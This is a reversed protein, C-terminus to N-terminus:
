KEYQVLDLLKAFLIDIDGNILKSTM